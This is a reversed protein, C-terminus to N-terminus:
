EKEEMIKARANLLRMEARAARAEARDLMRWFNLLLFLLGCSLGLLAWFGVEYLTTM